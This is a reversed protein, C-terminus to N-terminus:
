TSLRAMWLSTLLRAGYCSSRLRTRSQSEAQHQGLVCTCSGQLDSGITKRRWTLSIILLRTSTRSSSPLTGSKMMARRAWVTQSFVGMLSKQVTCPFGLGMTLHDSRQGRVRIEGDSQQKDRFSLADQHPQPALPQHTAPVLLSHGDVGQAAWSLVLNLALVSDVTQDDAPLVWVSGGSGEALAESGDGSILWALM